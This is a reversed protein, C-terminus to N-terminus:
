ARDRERSYWDHVAQADKADLDKLTFSRGSPSSLIAVSVSRLGAFRQLPNASVTLSQVHDRKVLVQVLNLNRFSLSMQDGSIYLGGNRHRSLGLLIAPAVLLLAAMAYPVGYHWGAFAISGAVIAVPATSRLLYRRLARRPLKISPSPVEYEPLVDRLFGEIEKRRILPYLLSVKERERSGGGAVEILLTCLGLPQRLLGQQVVVAQLRHLRLTVHNKKLVGWSIELRDKFRRVTFNAFQIVFAVTSLAWTLLLLGGAIALAIMMPVTSLTEVARDILDQPIHEYLQAYILFIISFLVMFRGSTMGALWLDRGILFRSATPVEVPRSADHVTETYLHARIREAEEKSVARLDVEADESVGATKIQLTMLGFAQQVVNSNVNLSQVRERKITRERKFLVGQRIHVMGDELRYLFFYWRLSNFLLSLSFIIVLSVAMNGIFGGFLDGPMSIAILLALSINSFLGRGTDMLILLPHQRRQESM